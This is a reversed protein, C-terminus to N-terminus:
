RLESPATHAHRTDRPGHALGRRWRELPQDIFKWIAVSGIVTVAVAGIVYPLRQMAPLSGWFINVLSVPIWHVLYIAFAIDGLAAGVGKRERGALWAAGPAALAAILVNFLGNYAALPSPNAGTLVIARGAETLLAAAALALTAAGSLQAVGADVRLRGNAVLVGFAFFPLYPLLTDPLFICALASVVLIAVSVAVRSRGALGAVILPAVLYFQLEVDLSWAPPLAQSDLLTYGLILSNGLLSGVCAGVSGDTTCPLAIERGAWNFVITAAVNAILFLPWIRLFRALVFTRWPQECHRYKENWMRAVWYGSLVFFIYVCAKGIGLRSLHHVVVLLALAIRLFGSAM